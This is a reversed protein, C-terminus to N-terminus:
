AEFTEGNAEAQKKQYDKVSAKIADEALMSCHLKVLPFFLYKAIQWNKITLVEEMSKGKVWETALSSAAIASVCGFTKFRADAIIDSGDFKVQLFGTGFNPDNKDFSGVKRPNDFHDIVIPHYMRSTITFPTSNGSSLELLSKRATQRLM